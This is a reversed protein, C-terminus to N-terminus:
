SKNHYRSPSIGYQKKFCDAFYGPNRFGVELAIESINGTNQELLKAAKCLRMRKILEAPTDGTLASLKRNLVTRSVALNDALFDVCLNNDSLNNNIVAISKQIFKQDLSTINQEEIEFIGHKRFHEHLRKRQELLNKIRAKLESAEFPKMIYDDAGTEFGSIKDNVTAKATLMIVPIHSTRSDSKLKSCLQFGDMKPMMIDSIILDPIEEFSKDLGEEGNKAETIQYHNELIMGIYKRVDSNDEVILLLPKSEQESLDIDNKREEKSESFDGLEIMKEQETGKESEDECIEEPRLHDKGLPFILRFTSGKSEQSEVEIKGKHLDILEKTLALGIGTGGQERTHSGDVQYFRDFIKDFQDKPIGIGTDSVLIQAINTNKLIRIEVKGGEPTFKFANSLVNSLMKDVKDKDIYVIIGNEPSIFNFDINKREALSYFSLAQEKVVTVLNLPCAKLRMEGSEIKSIDLLEDVLRNLKKASRHILDLEEKSKNDTMRDKLQRAPGLILTLPTRFEHSINTFFRNQLQQTEKLLENTDSFQDRAKQLEFTREAVKQELNDRYDVIARLVLADHIAINIVPSLYNVLENVESYDIGRGPNLVIEGIIKENIRIEQKIQSISEIEEGMETKIDINHDELDKLLYISAFTFGAEKILIETITKLTDNINLTQRISTSIEHATKLQTTQKQLFRKSEELKNYQSRLEDLSQTLEIFVKRFNFLWRIGRGMKFLLSEKNWSIYLDGKPPVLKLNVTIGKHGIQRFLQLWTGKTILFFEPCFEYGKALSFTVKIKNKDLYETEITVCSFMYGVLSLVTKDLIRVISKTSFLFLAGLIGEVYSGSKIFDVGMEEFETPTFFARSNSIFKCYIGWEVRERKNLLYELKYQIDVLLSNLSINKMKAALFVPTFAKCSVEKKNSIKM